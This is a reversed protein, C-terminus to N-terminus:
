GTCPWPLAKVHGHFLRQMYVTLYVHGHFPRSYQVVTYSRVSVRVAGVFCFVAGSVRVVQAKASVVSAASAQSSAIDTYLCYVTCVTNHKYQATSHWVQQKRSTYVVWFTSYTSYQM